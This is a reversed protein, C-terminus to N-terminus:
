LKHSISYGALPVSLVRNAVANRLRGKEAHLLPFLLRRCAPLFFDPRFKLKPREKLCLSVNYRTFQSGGPVITDKRGKYCFIIFYLYHLHACLHNQKPLIQKGM